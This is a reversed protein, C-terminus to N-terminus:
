RSLSREAGFKPARLLEGGATVACSTTPELSHLPQGTISHIAASTIFELLTQEPTRGGPVGDTNMGRYIDTMEGFKKFLVRLEEIGVFGKNVTVNLKKSAVNEKNQQRCYEDSAEKPVAM